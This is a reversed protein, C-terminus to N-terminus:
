RREGEFELIGGEFSNSFAEQLLNYIEVGCNQTRLSDGSSTYYNVRLRIKRLGPKGGTKAPPTCEDINLIIRM